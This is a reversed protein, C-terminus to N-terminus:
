DREKSIVVGQSYLIRKFDIVRYKKKLGGGKTFVTIRGFFNRGSNNSFGIVLNKKVRTVFSSTLTTYTKIKYKTDFFYIM